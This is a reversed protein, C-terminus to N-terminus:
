EPVTAREISCNGEPTVTENSGAGSLPVFVALTAVITAPDVAM